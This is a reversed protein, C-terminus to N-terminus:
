EELLQKVRLFTREIDELLDAVIQAALDSKDILGVSLQCLTTKM